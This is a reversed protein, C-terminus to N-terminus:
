LAGFLKEWVNTDKLTIEWFWEVSREVSSDPHQLWCISVKSGFLPDNVHDDLSTVLLIFPIVSFKM